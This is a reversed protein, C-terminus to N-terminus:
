KSRAASDNEITQSWALIQRYTFKMCYLINRPKEMDIILVKRPQTKLDAIETADGQANKLQQLVLNGLSCIGVLSMILHQKQKHRFPLRSVLSQMLQVQHLYFSSFEKVNKIRTPLTQMGQKLDDFLDMLDDTFQLLVGLQRWCSQEVTGAEEDLYFHVLLTSAGGKAITIRQIEENSIQPNLQGASDLQAQFLEKTVADYHAKDKVYSKLALHAHLFLREEFCTPQYEEPQYSIRYLEDATLQKEECFDDFLSSCLFYLMIREKEGPNSKRGRLQTFADSIMPIFGSFSVVARDTASKTLKGDFQQEMKKIYNISWKRERRRIYLISIVGSIIKFVHQIRYM